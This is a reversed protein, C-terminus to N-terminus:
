LVSAKMLIAWATALININIRCREHAGSVSTFTNSKFKENNKVKKKEGGGSGPSRGRRERHFLAALTKGPSQRRKGSCFFFLSLCLVGSQIEERPQPQM